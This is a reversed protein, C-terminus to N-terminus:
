WWLFELTANHSAPPVLTMGVAPQNPLTQESTLKGGASVYLNSNIAYPVLEFQDTQFIGRTFWITVRGSGLTTDEGPINPVYYSYSALTRFANNTSSGPTKYNLLTGTKIAVVGNISNSLEVGAYRSVFSTEVIHAKKLLEDSYEGAYYSGYGDTTIINPKVIIIEDIVPKMFATDKVDDILGIPARGDSVGMIADNGISKM